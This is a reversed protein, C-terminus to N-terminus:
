YPIYPVKVSTVETNDARVGFKSPENTVALITFLLEEDEIPFKNSQWLDTNYRIVVHLEEKKKNEAHASVVKYNRKYTAATTALISVLAEVSDCADISDVISSGQWYKNGQQRGCLEVVRAKALEKLESLEM